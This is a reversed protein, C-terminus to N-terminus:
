DYTWNLVKMMKYKVLLNPIRFLEVDRFGMMVGIETVAGSRCVGMHCHVIVNMNNDLAHQLLRVLEEAQQDTIAFECFDLITNDFNTVGDSEIDLFEFQHIERFKHKPIPFESGPDKIQILMSNVGADYHQGSKVSDLSANIIWPTLM